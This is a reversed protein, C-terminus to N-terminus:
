ADGEPSPRVSAYQYGHILTDGPRVNAVYLSVGPGLGVQVIQETRDSNNRGLDPLIVRTVGEPIIFEQRTEWYQPDGPDFLLRFSYEQLYYELQHSRDFAVILTQEPAHNLTIYRVQKTLIEDIHRIEQYRGEGAAFFFLLTNSIAIVAVLVTTIGISVRHPTLATTVMGRQTMLFRYAQECDRAFGRMALAAYILLGPM